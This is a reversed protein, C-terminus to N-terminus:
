FEDIRTVLSILDLRFFFWFFGHLISYFDTLYFVFIQDFSLFKIDLSVLDFMTFDLLVWYFGTFGPLIM